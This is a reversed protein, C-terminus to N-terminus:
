QRDEDQGLTYANDFLTDLVDIVDERTEDDEGIGLNYLARNILGKKWAQIQWKTM